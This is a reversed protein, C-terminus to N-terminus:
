LVNPTFSTCFNIVFGSPLPTEVRNGTGQERNGTGQQIDKPKEHEPLSVIIELIANSYAIRASRKEGLEQLIDEFEQWTVDEITIMSGPALRIQSVPKVVTTM